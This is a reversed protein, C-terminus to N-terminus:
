RYVPLSSIWFATWIIAPYTAIWTFVFRNLGLIYFNLLHFMLAGTLFWPLYDPFLLVAPASMEFLMVVWSAILSLWTKNISRRVTQNEQYSSLRIFVPLAKGQRWNPKKIKIWGGIFYSLLSQLGLYMVAGQALRGEPFALALSLTGLLIVSMHDSGGNFNGRWRSLLLLQSILLVFVFAWHSYILLTFSLFIRMLSFAPHPVIDSFLFDILGSLDRFDRRLTVWRWPGQSSFVKNLWLQEFSQVVVVIAVLIRTWLLCELISM